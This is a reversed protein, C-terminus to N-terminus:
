LDVKLLKRYPSTIFAIYTIKLDGPKNIAPPNQKYYLFYSENRVIQAPCHMASIHAFCIAM